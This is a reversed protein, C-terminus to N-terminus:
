GKGRRHGHKTRGDDKHVLGDNGPRRASYMNSGEIDLTHIERFTNTMNPIGITVM